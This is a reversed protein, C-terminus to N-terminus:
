GVLTTACAKMRYCNANDQINTISADDGCVKCRVNKNPLKVIRSTMSLGDFVYMRKVLLDGIDTIYKIAELAQISGIIGTVAGIVGATSCNPMDPNEPINEFICRYCPGQDPVYTMVQGHFGICGAHCFAKKHLVCADNVLFKTEFNDSAEIIFDYECIIKEINEPTIFDTYVNVKINCNLRKIKEKAYLAKNVNIGEMDHIIQRQLNSVSVVDADILGIEGVGASALYLAVPSGLGGVGVILVKAKKLKKQGEIGIEPLIIQRDYRQLEEESLEDLYHILWSKYGGVLDYAEYGRERLKKVVVASKQGYMCYVILKKNKHKEESLSEIEIAGDIHGHMYAVSGRTDVFLIDRLNLTEAEEITIKM